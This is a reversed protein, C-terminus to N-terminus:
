CILDHFFINTLHHIKINETDFLELTGPHPHKQIYMVGQHDLFIIKM